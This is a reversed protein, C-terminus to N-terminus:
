KSHVKWPRGETPIERVIKGLRDVEVLRLQGTSAVLTHGNALRTAHVAGLVTCEWVIKGARDLELVKGSDLFAVLYRGGTLAEIGSWGSYTNGIRTVKLVKGTTAEIERIIGPNALCVIRGGPLREASFQFLGDSAHRYYVTKGDPMVEIMTTHTAIFTNGNGLRRCAIPSEDMSKSWYLKGNCDRETVIRGEYEAVLVHGNPLLQADMPGQLSRIQWHVEGRPGCEWVKNSDMEVVIPYASAQEALTLSSWDIAGRKETWWRSWADCYKRRAAASDDTLCIPPAKEGAIRFLLDEAKGSLADSNEALLSILIPVASKDNGAILGEAARLRVKPDADQLLKRVSQRVGLDKSRGAVFAAAARRAPSPDTLSNVISANWDKKGVGISALASYIEEEIWEDNCFPM